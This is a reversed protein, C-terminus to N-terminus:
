VLLGVNNNQRPLYMRPSGSSGGQRSAPVAFPSRSRGVAIADSMAGRTFSVSQSLCVYVSMSYLNSLFADFIHQGTTAAQYKELPPRTSLGNWNSILRPQLLIHQLLM